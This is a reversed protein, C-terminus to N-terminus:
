KTHQVPQKQQAVTEPTEPKVPAQPIEATWEGPDAEYAAMDKKYDALQREYTKMAAAYDASPATRVYSKNSAEAPLAHASLAGGGTLAAVMATAVILRKEM